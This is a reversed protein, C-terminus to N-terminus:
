EIRVWSPASFARGVVARAFLYDNRSREGLAGIEVRGQADCPFSLDLAHDSLSSFRLEYRARGVAAKPLQSM